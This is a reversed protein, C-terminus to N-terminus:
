IQMWLLDSSVTVACNVMKRLNEQGEDGGAAHHCLIADNEMQSVIIPCLERRIRSGEASFIIRQCKVAYLDSAIGDCNRRSNLVQEM